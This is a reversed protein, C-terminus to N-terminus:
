VATQWTLGLPLARPGFLFHLVRRRSTGKAKSSSHLLLPRMVLASGREAACVVETGARRALAAAEPEIQGRVHSGPVLRLPGDDLGCADIHLRVAVLQELVAVPAHVYLSGEKRSWGGLSEHDVRAAVPISLDQHVPVLWNRASSKEFSTCQVAVSDPPLLPSLSPHERLWVALARCWDFSLLCRTGPSSGTAAVVHAAIAECEVSALVDPVLAFGHAAFHTADM